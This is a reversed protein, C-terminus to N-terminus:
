QGNCGACANWMLTFDCFHEVCPMCVNWVSFSIFFPFSFFCSFHFFLLFSLRVRALRCSSQSCFFAYGIHTCVEVKWKFFLGSQSCIYSLAFYYRKGHTLNLKIAYLYYFRTTWHYCRAMKVTKASSLLRSSNLQLVFLCLYCYKLNILIIWWLCYALCHAITICHKPLIRSAKINNVQHM